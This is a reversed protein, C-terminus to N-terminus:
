VAVETEGKFDAWRLVKMECTFWKNSGECGFQRTDPMWRWVGYYTSVPVKQPSDPYVFVYECLYQDDRMPEDDRDFWMLVPESRKLAREIARNYTRERPSVAQCNPNDCVYSIWGDASVQPHMRSKSGDPMRCFPCYPMRRRM